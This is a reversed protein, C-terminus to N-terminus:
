KCIFSKLNNDSTLYYIKNKQNKVEKGTMINTMNIALQNIFKSEPHLYIEMELDIYMNLKKMFKNKQQLYAFILIKSIHQLININLTNVVFRNNVITIDNYEFTHMDESIPSFKMPYICLIKILLQIIKITLKTKDIFIQYGRKVYKAYRNLFKKFREPCVCLENLFYDLPITAINEINTNYSFIKGNHYYNKVIDFDFSSEILVEIDSQIIIIDITKNQKKMKFDYKILSSHDYIINDYFEDELISICTQHIVNAADSKFKLEKLFNVLNELHIIDDETSINVYIDIDSENYMNGTLTQLLTSGSIFMIDSNFHLLFEDVIEDIELMNRLIQYFVDINYQVQTFM